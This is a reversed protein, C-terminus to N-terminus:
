NRQVREFTFGFWVSDSDAHSNPIIEECNSVSNKIYGMWDLAESKSAFPGIETLSDTIGQKQILFETIYKQEQTIGIFIKMSLRKAFYSQFNAVNRVSCCYAHWHKIAHM